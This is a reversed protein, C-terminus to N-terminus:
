IQEKEQSEKPQNRKNIKEELALIKKELMDVKDQIKKLPDVKLPLLEQTRQVQYQKILEDMNELVGDDKEKFLENADPLIPKANMQEYEQQKQEFQRSVQEQKTYSNSYSNPKMLLTTLLQQNYQQLEQKTLILNALNNQLYVTEMAKKFLLERDSMNKSEFSPIRQALKWLLTQNQNDLFLSM